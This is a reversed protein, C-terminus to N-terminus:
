GACRGAHRAAAALLGAAWEPTALAHVHTYSAWVNKLCLGDRGRGCGTGRTVACATSVAQDEPVIRSYHFEHGRIVLGQRFFPNPQDVLLEVYGHGQPDPALEVEFPLVGAMPFRTQKWRIALSLLMLGGCEAYIPLGREAASGIAALFDRNASLAAGHAEPFGGGVYLASLDEPIQSAILPSIPIIQAGARELAEINEPYYFSFASDRLLGIKIGSTSAISAPTRSSDATPETKEALAFIRDLDLHDRVLSMVNTQLDAIRPHEGPTLLGLHRAPLLLDGPARPLVGLVPIRCIDEIAGRLVSEHRRGSVQNLIVGGIHVGPDLSSCGLVWAAATRTVKTVNVVLLVPAKLCKALEATSHTGEVDSGDYLGRNGEVVNLGGSLASRAFSAACGDFGMLYSDLNRAIEGSAWALWATDIYDPGKKFARVSRGRERALLILGLSVLTKGSDGSMGAIVLRAHSAPTNM